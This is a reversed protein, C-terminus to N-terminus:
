SECVNKGVCIAGDCWSPQTISSREQAMQLRLPDFQEIEMEKTKVRKPGYDPLTAAVSEQSPTITITPLKNTMVYTGNPVELLVYGSDIATTIDATTAEIVVRYVGVITADAIEVEYQRAGTETLAYGTPDAVVETTFPFLFAKLTQETPAEIRLTRSM